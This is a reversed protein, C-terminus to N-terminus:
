LRRRVDMREHLVRVILVNAERKMFFVNHRGCELRFYGPRIHGADRGLGPFEALRGFTAHLGLVYEEARAVGWQAVSANAIDRIDDEAALTLTYSGM